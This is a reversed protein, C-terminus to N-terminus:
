ATFPPVWFGNGFNEASNHYKGIDLSGGRRIDDNVIMRTTTEANNDEKHFQSVEYTMMRTAEQSHLNKLRSLIVCNATGKGFHGQM